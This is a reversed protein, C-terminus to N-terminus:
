STSHRLLADAESVVNDGTVDYWAQFSPRPSTLLTPGMSNIFNVVLVADIPSIHGDANVDWRNQPNNWLLTQNDLYFRLAAADLRTALGVYNSNGLM